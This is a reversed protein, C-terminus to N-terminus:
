RFLPNAAAPLSLADADREASSGDRERAPGARGEGRSRSDQGAGDYARAGRAHAQAALCEGHVASATTTAAPTGSVLLGSLCARPLPSEVRPATMVTRLLRDAEGRGRGGGRTRRTSASWRARRRRRAAGGTMKHAPADKHSRQQNKRHNPGGSKSELSHMPGALAGLGPHLAASLLPRPPVPTFASPPFLQISSWPPLQATLRIPLPPRPGGAAVHVSRARQLGSLEHPEPHRSLISSAGENTSWTAVSISPQPRPPPVTPAASIVYPSRSPPEQETLRIRGWM